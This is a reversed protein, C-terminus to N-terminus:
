FSTEEEHYAKLGDIHWHVAGLGVGTLIAALGMASFFDRKRKKRLEDRWPLLNIKAM